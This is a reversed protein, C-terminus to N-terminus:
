GGALKKIVAPNLRYLTWETMPRAGLGLYIKIAPENWDLVSWEMRGCDRQLAIRALQRLLQSGVGRGRYEPLVFLDELYLTPKGVFTSFTFFYLAFGISISSAGESIEALLAKYYSHEGFGYRTFLEETATVQSSLKEYVALKSVLQVIQPVDASTAEKIHYSFKKDVSFDQQKKGSM